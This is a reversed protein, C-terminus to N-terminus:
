AFSRINFKPKFIKVDDEFNAFMVSLGVPLEEYHQEPEPTIWVYSTGVESM